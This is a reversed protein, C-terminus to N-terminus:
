QQKQQQKRQKAARLKMIWMIISPCLNRLKVALQNSLPAMLDDNVQHTVARLVHNAAEAPPMGSATTADMVAILCDTLWDNQIM